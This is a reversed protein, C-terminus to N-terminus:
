VRGCRRGHSIATAMRSRKLEVCEAIKVILEGDPSDERGEFVGTGMGYSDLAVGPSDERGEFVGTGKKLASKSPSGDSRKEAEGPEGEACEEMTIRSLAKESM